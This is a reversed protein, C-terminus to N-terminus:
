YLYRRFKKVMKYGCWELKEMVIKSWYRATDWFRNYNFLCMCRSLKYADFEREMWVVNLTIAGPFCFIRAATRSFPSKKASASRIVPFSNCISSYMSRPTQCASFQREMWAVYQTIIAPADGPFFLCIPQPVHFRFRRNKQVQLEFLQSITSSLHTCALPKAPVLNDKWEHLTKRSQWLPTGLAFLFHLGPYTFIAIKQLQPEFLQSVTTSLCTCAALRKALM